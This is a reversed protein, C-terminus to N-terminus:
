FMRRYWPRRSLYPFPDLPIPAPSPLYVPRTLQAKVQLLRALTAYETTLNAFSAPLLTDFPHDTVGDKVAKRGREIQYDLRGQYLKIRERCSDIEANVEDLITFPNLSM